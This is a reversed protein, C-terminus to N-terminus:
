MFGTRRGEKMLEGERIIISERPALREIENKNGQPTAKWFSQFPQNVSQSRKHSKQPFEEKDVKM